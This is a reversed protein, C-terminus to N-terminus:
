IQQRPLTTRVIRISKTIGLGVIALGFIIGFIPGPIVFVQAYSTMARLAPIMFIIGSVALLGSILFSKKKWAIVFAAISLMIAVLSLLPTPGLKTMVAVNGAANTIVIALTAAALSAALLYKLDTM